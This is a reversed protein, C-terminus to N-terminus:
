APVEDARAPTVATGALVQEARARFQQAEEPGTAEDGYWASEFLLSAAAFPAGAAPANRHVEIRYEGTTRGPLDRVTGRQILEGVLARFRCRLAQKWEGRGEFREADALWEHPPRRDELDFEYGAGEGPAKATRRLRALLFVSVGVLLALLVWGVAGLTSGPSVKSLQEFLWDFVNQLANKPPEQYEAGSLIDDAERRSAEASPQPPPLEHRAVPVGVAAVAAPPIAAASAAPAAVTGTLTLGVALVVMTVARGATREASM